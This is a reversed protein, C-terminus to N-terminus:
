ESLHGSWLCRVLAHRDCQMPWCPVNRRWVLHHMPHLQQPGRQQCLVGALVHRLQHLKLQCLSHREPLGRMVHHWCQSPLLWAPLSQVHSVSVNQHLGSPVARVPSQQDCNPRGIRVRKCQMGDTSHMCAHVQHIHMRGHPLTHITHLDASYVTHMPYKGVPHVACHPLQRDPLRTYVIRMHKFRARLFLQQRPRLWPLCDAWSRQQVRGRRM